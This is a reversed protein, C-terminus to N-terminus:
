EEALIALLSALGIIMALAFDGWSAQYGPREVLHALQVGAFVFGGVTTVFKM